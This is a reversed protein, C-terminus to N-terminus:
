YLDLAVSVASPGENQGTDHVQAQIHHNTITVLIVKQSITNYKYQNTKCPWKPQNCKLVAVKQRLKLIDCM